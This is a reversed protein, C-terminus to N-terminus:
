MGLDAMVSKLYAIDQQAFWERDGQRPAEICLPGDFRTKKLLLLFERNNIMGDGLPCKVMETHDGATVPHSNKLHVMYTKGALTTVAEELSPAKSFYVMNGYDLNAGVAPSDIMDLLKVTPEPLDSLCGMHTEFGMKFGYEEAVAGLQRYGEAVWKYHDETAAGSGSAHYDWRAANPDRRPISGMSVNCVNLKIREAAARYFHLGWETWKKREAADDTCLNMGTGGFLVHRLGAREAATAIEDIYAESAEPSVEGGRRSGRFEIGDYGWRVAKECMESITQGQECYNVHMIIPLSM